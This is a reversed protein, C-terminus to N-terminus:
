SGREVKVGVGEKLGKADANEVIIEGEELGKRVETFNWNSLGIEVEKLNARGKQVLYIMKKGEREVLATTPVSLVNQLHDTIVEVDASMGPKIFPPKEEFYTWIEFTRTEQKAGIVIPSIRKLLGPFVKDPYADLRINVKQGVKLNRVDVEDITSRIYLRKPEVLTVIPSGISVFEGESVWKKSVVGHFPADIVSYGLQIQALRLAAEMQQVIARAAAVDKEKVKNLDLNGLAKEHQAKAILYAEEARDLSSKSIVGRQFLVKQREWEKTANDLTAQTQNVQSETQIREMSVGAETQGFRAQATHLNAEAEMVRAKAEVRDIEVVIEGKKVEDGEELEMRTVKGSRQASLVVEKESKIMSTTTASVTVVLVGKKVGMTKLPIKNRSGYFYLVISVAGVLVAVIILLSRRKM